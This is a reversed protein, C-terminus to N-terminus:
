RLRLKSFSDYPYALSAALSLDSLQDYSPISIEREELRAVQLIRGGLLQTLLAPSAGHEILQKVLLLLGSFGPIGCAGAEKDVLTHPAHDTEIWDVRGQLLAAFLSSRQTESRLPPNMKAYLSRDKADETTLLAHHPTVACSIRRHNRKAEEIGRLAEISSLHCIHLHGKFGAEESFQIQDFVSAVEAEVPRALSHSSFDHADELDSKLLSEKECHVAVMGEYGVKALTQYVTRQMAEDVLGMNGTSHGAFLKLGIVSPFLTKALSAVEEVQKLDSTVGAWLHYRVDQSAHAADKLRKRIAAETTLPPNTNPMDFLEDIKCRFAVEMGHGLTEKEAQDWDRLHVHPDIM